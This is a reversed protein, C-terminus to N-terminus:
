SLVPDELSASSQAGTALLTGGFGIEVARSNAYEIWSDTLDFDQAADDASNGLSRKDVVEITDEPRIGAKSLTINNSTTVGLEARGCVFPQNNITIQLNRGIIAVVCSLKIFRNHFLMQRTPPLDVDSFVEFIKLKLLALSDSADVVVKRTKTRKSNRRSARQASPGSTTSADMSEPQQLVLSAIHEASEILKVTLTENRFVSRSQECEKHIKSVCEACARPCWQWRLVAAVRQAMGDPEIIMVDLDSSECKHIGDCSVTDPPELEVPRLQVSFVQDDM